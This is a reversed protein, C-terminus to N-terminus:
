GVFHVSPVHTVLLRKAMNEKDMQRSLCCNGPLPQETQGSGLSLLLLSGHRKMSMYCSHSPFGQQQLGSLNPPQKDCLRIYSISVFVAVEGNQSRPLTVLGRWTEM